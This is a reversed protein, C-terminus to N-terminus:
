GSVHIERNSIRGVSQRWWSTDWRKGEQDRNTVRLGMRSNNGELSVLLYQSHWFYLLLVRQPHTQRWKWKGWTDLPSFISLLPINDWSSVTWLLASSLQPPSFLELFCDKVVQSTQRRTFSVNFLQLWESVCMEGLVYICLRFSFSLSLLPM